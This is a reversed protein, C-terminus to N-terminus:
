MILTKLKGQHNLFKPHTTGYTGTLEFGRVVIEKKVDNLAESGINILQQRNSAKLNGTRKSRKSMQELQLHIRYKDTHRKFNAMIIADLPQLHKTCGGPILM